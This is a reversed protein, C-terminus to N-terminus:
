RLRLGLAREGSVSPTQRPGELQMQANQLAHLLLQRELPDISDVNVLFAHMVFGHRIRALYQHSGLRERMEDYTREIASGSVNASEVVWNGNKRAVTLLHGISDADNGHSWLRGIRSLTDRFSGGEPKRSLSVSVEVRNNKLFPVWLRNRLTTVEFANTDLLGYHKRLALELLFLSDATEEPPGPANVRVGRSAEGYTGGQIEQFFSQTLEDIKKNEGLLSVYVVAVVLVLVVLPVFIALAIRPKRM